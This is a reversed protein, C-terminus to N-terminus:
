TEKRKFWCAKFIFNLKLIVKDKIADVPRKGTLRTKETNLAEVIRSAKEGM